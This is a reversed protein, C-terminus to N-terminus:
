GELEAGPDTRLDTAFKAWAARDRNGDPPPPAAAVRLTEALGEMM